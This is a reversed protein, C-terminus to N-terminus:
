FRGEVEGVRGKLEVIENKLVEIEREHEDCKGSCSDRERRAEDLEGGLGEIEGELDKVHEEQDEFKYRLETNENKLGTIEGVMIRLHMGQSEQCHEEVKLRKMKKKCGYDHLYCAVETFDCDNKVHGNMNRIQARFGCGQPCDIMKQPCSLVHESIRNASFVQKCYDCPIERFRCDELVHKNVDKRELNETCGRNSCKV